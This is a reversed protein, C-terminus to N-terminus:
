SNSPFGLDIGGDSPDPWRTTIVKGRTYFRVGDTGYIHHDGFLSDKWGGFSHYGVPVPIPVNVGVMGAQVELQFRRAAGGDRTFIATGNGWRSSNILTIAEEYSAVRVVSLVPGFIEDRYADMEPTVKDLLSVGLFFGNEHGAVVLDTGDVVVEAGQERAKPVYSAVKDRHERTVLPGMESAPDTGPGIRLNRAREAIRAVLDDGIPDVAVVVSVAMCREGASGYAASVAADAAQDLNADPLVLMHNKAGGLAQVRKGHASATNHVYRAIPTSGVFSVAAVDPHELLRDVAVKDGHVLNLVGEPLGAEHALEVLRATASPDKESPKLVFTNGCAIALPFMWLPVMAPFNFPTIGAVVGLPQRISEVDVRTSVQTSSEGKLLQPIGCALEVVELGRAVEGLADSHVKGHEATILAAIEDRHANLVERFTFLVQTRRALSMSSWSEFARAAAAVAADVEDIGAFPVRATQEGTAPNTVM